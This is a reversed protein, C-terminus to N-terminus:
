NTITVPVGIYRRYGQFNLSLPELFSVASLCSCAVALCKHHFHSQLCINKKKKVFHPWLNLLNSLRETHSTFRGKSGTGFYAGLVVLDATDAM